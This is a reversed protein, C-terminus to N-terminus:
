TQVLRTRALVFTSGNGTPIYDVLGDLIWNENDKVLTEVWEESANHLVIREANRTIATNFTSVKEPKIKSFRDDEHKYNDIYNEDIQRVNPDPAILIALRPTLPLYTQGIDPQGEPFYFTAPNDCTVFPTPSDNYMILWPSCFFRNTNKILTSIGMAHSFQRDVEVQLGEKAIVNKLTEKQSESMDDLKEITQPAIMDAAAKVPGALIKQMIRKYTPTCTKLFSIYGSIKYKVELTLEGKKVKSVNDKWSNEFQPLYTDLIRTDDFYPNSDGNIECCISKPRVANGITKQSKKYYPTLYGEDNSFQRLYTQAVYHDKSM